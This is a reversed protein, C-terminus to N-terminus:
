LAHFFDSKSLRLLVAYIRFLTEPDAAAKHTSVTRRSQDM